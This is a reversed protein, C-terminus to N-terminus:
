YLFLYSFHLWVLILLSIFIFLPAMNTHICVNYIYRIVIFTSGIVALLFLFSYEHFFSLFVLFQLIYFYVSLMFNMTIKQINIEIKSYDIQTM